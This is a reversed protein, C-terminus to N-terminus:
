STKDLLPPVRQQQVVEPHCGPRMKGELSLLSRAYCPVQFYFKSLCKGEQSASQLDEVLFLGASCYFRVPSTGGSAGLWPQGKQRPRELRASM